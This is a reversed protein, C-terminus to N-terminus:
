HRQRTPKVSNRQPDFKNLGGGETGIWLIGTKDQYIISIANHSLSNPNQPDHSYHIFRNHQRDFQNLKERTGIWLTGIKDQYISAVLKLRSV